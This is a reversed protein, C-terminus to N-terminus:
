RLCSIHLDLSLYLVQFDSDFTDKGTEPSAETCGSIRRQECAISCTSILFDTGATSFQPVFSSISSAQMASKYLSCILVFSIQAFRALWTDLARSFLLGRRNKPLFYLNGQMEDKLQHVYSLPVSLREPM